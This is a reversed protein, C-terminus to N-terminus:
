YNRQPQCKIKLNIIKEELALRQLDMSELDKRNNEMQSRNSEVTSLQNKLSELIKQSDMLSSYLRVTLDLYHDQLAKSTEATKQQNFQILSNKLQDRSDSIKRTEQERDSTVQFLSDTMQNFSGMYAEYSSQQSQNLNKYKNELDSLDIELQPLVDKCDDRKELKETVAAIDAAHSISFALTHIVILLIFLGFWNKLVWVGTSISLSALGVMIARLSEM